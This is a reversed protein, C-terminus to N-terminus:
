STSCASASIFCSASWSSRRPWACRSPFSTQSAMAAFDGLPMWQGPPFMSFSDHLASIVLYHSDTVFVMTVGLISLYNGFLAGQQGANSIDTGLAFAMGSQSAIIVGATQLTYTVLKACLGVAFGIALEGGFLTLLQLLNDTLHAPYAASGTPYLILTLALAVTLRLRPPISTEGLAPMIMIMTGLRAFMLMFVATIEPLLSLQLTM